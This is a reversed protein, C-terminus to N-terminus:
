ELRRAHLWLLKGSDARREKYTYRGKLWDRWKGLQALERQEKTLFHFEIEIARIGDLEEPKITWECGECDIKIFDIKGVKGKLDEFSITRCANSFGLFSIVQCDTPVGIALNLVAINAIGNLSVNAQLQRHFIPEIAYVKKARCSAPLSFAGIHAGLDVVIDEPGIDEFEYDEYVASIPFQTLFDFYFYLGRYKTIPSGYKNTNVIMIDLDRLALSMWHELSRSKILAKM